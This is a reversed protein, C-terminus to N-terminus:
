DRVFPFFLLRIIAKCLGKFAVIVDRFAVIVDRMLQFLKTNPRPPCPINAPCYSERPSRNCVKGTTTRNKLGKSKVPYYPLTPDTFPILTYSVPPGPVELFWHFYYLGDDCQIFHCFVDANSRPITMKVPIPLEYQVTRSATILLTEGGSYSLTLPQSNSGVTGSITQQTGGIISSWEQSKITVKIVPTGTTGPMGETTLKFSGTSAVYKLISPMVPIAPAVNTTTSM